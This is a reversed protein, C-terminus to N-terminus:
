VKEKLMKASVMYQYAMFMFEEAGDSLAMLKSVFDQENPSSPFVVCEVKEIQYEEQCFMKVIENYTFLHIHTRDLLGADQYSFNGNILEKLVSFHMVNPISAIIRGGEKLLNRCYRVAEDPKRLHELVDGFMIYDFRVDGFHLDYKEIDGVKVEFFHSAIAAAHPNIEVGYLKANPYLNKVELLNVGCDCGIELIHFLAQKEESIYSNLWSNSQINFYNMGWKEKLVPRDAESGFTGTFASGEDGTKYFYSNGCVYLKYNKMIGCFLFDMMSSEPLVLREDFGGVAEIMANKILVACPDLRIAELDKQRNGQCRNVYEYAALYNKGSESGCVIVSPSVAGIEKNKYLVKQMEAIANPLIIFNPSLVLIDETIQFQQIVTNLIVSYGEMKDQCVVFDFCGQETLWEKLGDESANDVIVVRELGIAEVEKLIHLGEQVLAIQNHAIMVVKIGM